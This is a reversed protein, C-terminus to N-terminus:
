GTVNPWDAFISCMEEYGGHFNSSIFLLLFHNEASFPASSLLRVHCPNSIGGPDVPIFGIIGSLVIKVCGIM